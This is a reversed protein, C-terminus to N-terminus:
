SDQSFLLFGIRFNININQCIFLSSLSLSCSFWHVSHLNSVTVQQNRLAWSNSSEDKTGLVTTWEFGHRTIIDGDLRAPACLTLSFIHHSTIHHWATQYTAASRPSCASEMKLTPKRDSTQVQRSLQVNGCLLFSYDSYQNSHASWIDYYLNSVASHAIPSYLTACVLLCVKSIISTELTLTMSSSYHDFHTNYFSILRLQEMIKFDKSKSSYMM